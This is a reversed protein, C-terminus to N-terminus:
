INVMLIALMNWWEEFNKSITLLDEQRKPPSIYSEMRSDYFANSKESINSLTAKGVYFSICISQQTHGTELLRFTIALWEGATLSKRLHTEHKAIKPGVLTLLHEFHDPFM